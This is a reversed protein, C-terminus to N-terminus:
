GFTASSLARHVRSGETLQWGMGAALAFPGLVCMQLGEPLWEIFVWREITAKLGSAGDATGGRESRGGGGAGLVGSSEIRVGMAADGDDADARWM